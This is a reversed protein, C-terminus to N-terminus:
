PTAEILLVLDGRLREVSGVTLGATRANDVTRRNIHTGILGAVLPDLADMLRGAIPRDLRVHELLIVRGGPKCVRRVERLGQVPDPVTCFVCTAVVTDFTGDAFAMRQADMEMLRVPVRCVKYRSGALMQPSLDIGVLQTTVDPHYFPLNNGTGVGVELVAGAARASVGARWEDRVMRDMRDFFRANRDYKRRVSATAREDM